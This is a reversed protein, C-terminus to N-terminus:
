VTQHISNSPVQQQHRQQDRAGDVVAVVNELSKKWMELKEDLLHWQAVGFQRNTGRHVLFLQRVQSMKGEVLGARIVDIVWKEVEDAACGIANAITTYALTRDKMLTATALDSLTLLKIKHVAAAM